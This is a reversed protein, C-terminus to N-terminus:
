KSPDAVAPLPTADLADFQSQRDQFAQVMNQLTGRSFAAAPTPSATAPPALSDLVGLLDFIGWGLALAVVLCALGLLCRWYIDALLRAGEPEYRASYLNRAQGTIDSFKMMILLLCGYTSKHVLELAM